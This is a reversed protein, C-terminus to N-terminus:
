RSGTCDLSVSITKTVQPVLFNNNGGRGPGVYPVWQTTQQPNRVSTVTCQSMPASGVRDITVVYGEAQLQNITDQATQAAASDPPAVLALATGAIAAALAWSTGM